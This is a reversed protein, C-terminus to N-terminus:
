GILRSYAIVIVVFAFFLGATLVAAAAMDKSKGIEDHIEPHIRDLAAEFSSNQMETILILIWSLVLFFLENQSLPWWLFCLLLVIVGGAFFQMRYSYDDVLASKFGKIAYRLRNRNKQIFNM